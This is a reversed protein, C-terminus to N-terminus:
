YLEFRFAPTLARRLFKEYSKKKAPRVNAEEMQIYM